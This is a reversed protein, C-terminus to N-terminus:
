LDKITEEIGLGKVTEKLYVINCNRAEVYPNRELAFPHNRNEQEEFKKIDNEEGEEVPQKYVGNTQYFINVSPRTDSM